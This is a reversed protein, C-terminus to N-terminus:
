SLSPLFSHENEVSGLVVVITLEVLKFYEFIRDKVILCFVFRKWMRTTPNCDHPPKM